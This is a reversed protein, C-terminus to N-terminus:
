DGGHGQGDDEGAGSERVIADDELARLEQDSVGGAANDKRAQLLSKPRLLSGVHDARFPCPAGGRVVAHAHEDVLGCPRELQPCPLRRREVRHQAKADAGVVLLVLGGVM